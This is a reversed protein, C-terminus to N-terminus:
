RRLCAAGARVGSRRRTSLVRSTSVRGVPATLWRCAPTSPLDLGIRPRQPDGLAPHHRGLAPQRGGPPNSPAPFPRWDARGAMHLAGLPWTSRGATGSSPREPRQRPALALGSRGASCRGAGSPPAPRTTDSRVHAVIFVNNCPGRACLAPPFQAPTAPHPAPPGQASRGRPRLRPSSPSVAPRATRPGGLPARATWM